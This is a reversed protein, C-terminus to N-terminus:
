EAKRRRRSCTKLWSFVPGDLPSLLLQELVVGLSLTCVEDLMLLSLQEELAAAQRPRRCRLRLVLLHGVFAWRVVGDLLEVLRAKCIKLLYTTFNRTIHCRGQIGGKELSVILSALSLSEADSRQLSPKFNFRSVESCKLSSIRM